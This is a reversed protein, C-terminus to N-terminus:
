INSHFNKQFLLKAVVNWREHQGIIIISIENMKKKIGGIIIMFHCSKDDQIIVM